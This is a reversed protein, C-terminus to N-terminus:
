KKYVLHRFHAVAGRSTGVRPRCATGLVVVLEFGLNQNRRVSQVFSARVRLGSSQHADRTMMMAIIGIRLFLFSPPPPTRAAPLLLSGCLFRARGACSSASTPPAPATLSSLSRGLPVVQRGGAGAGRNTKTTTMRDHGALCRLAANSDFHSGRCHATTRAACM